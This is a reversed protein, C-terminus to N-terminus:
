LLTGKLRNSWTEVKSPEDFWYEQLLPILEYEVIAPLEADCTASDHLDCLFSHGICFGAGLSDDKAIEINLEEIRQVLRDFKESRLGAQYRRFGESSFAPTLEFFAFRRRLAYDIMALSRDATNMMGIIFVNEPVFFLEESYLLRLQNRSGRKDSELLVFLEGLVKSLNGRNIEDIIFFYDRGSDGAARKCFTYFPGERLEFGTATPRFGMVFDEYSYSQHFQVQAVRDEDREGMMAYALRKATFTKGVGPPGQLIVNKKRRVLGELVRYRGESIFVERLFDRMTYLARSSQSTAGVDEREFLTKIEHVYNPYATLDVLMTTPLLLEEMRWSGKDTWRVRRVHPYEGGQQTDFEYESEVIGRGLIETSGRKAYVIDGPKLDHVFQWAMRATADYSADGHHNERLKKGMEDKDAYGRLDGLEGWALSMVGRAYFDDWMAAGKGPTYLWHRAADSKGSAGRRPQALKWAADTLELFSSFECVGANMAAVCQDRLALYKEASPPASSKLAAVEAALAEPVHATDAMYYRNNADLSLYFHPRIWYLAMTLNWSVFLQSMAQKYAACFRARNEGNDTAALALAADFAEWLNDIDHEPRSEFAYFTARQNNIRPVGSFDGPVDVNMGFEEVFEGVIARRNAVTMGKNFLGFTTFPDIDRLVGGKDLPPFDVSSLRAYAARIKRILAQRDDKYALLKTAFATYFGVWTFRGEGRGAPSDISKGETDGEGNTAGANSM